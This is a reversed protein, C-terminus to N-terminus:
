LEFRIVDMLNCLYYVVFAFCGREYSMKAGSQAIIMFIICFINDTCARVMFCLSLQFVFTQYCVLGDDLTNEQDNKKKEHCEPYTYLYCGVSFRSSWNSKVVHRSINCFAKLNRKQLWVKELLYSTGLWFNLSRGFDASLRSFRCHKAVLPWDASKVMWARWASGSLRGYPPYLILM